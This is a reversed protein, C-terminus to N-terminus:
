VHFEADADPLGRIEIPFLVLGVQGISLDQGVDEGVRQLRDQRDEDVLVDGGGIEGGGHLSV